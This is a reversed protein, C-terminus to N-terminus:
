FMIEPAGGFLNKLSMWLSQSILVYDEYLELDAKLTMYKWDNFEECWTKSELYHM